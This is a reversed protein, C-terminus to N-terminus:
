CVLLSSSTAQLGADRNPPSIWSSITPQRPKYLRQPSRSVLYIPPHGRCPQFFDPNELPISGIPFLIIQIPNSAQSVWNSGWSDWRLQRGFFHTLQEPWSAAAGSVSFGITSVGDSAVCKFAARSLQQNSDAPLCQLLRCGCCCCFVM